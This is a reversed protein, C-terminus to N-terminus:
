MHYDCNVQIKKKKSQVTYYAILVNKHVFDFEIRTSQDSINFCPICLRLVYMYYYFYLFFTIKIHLAHLSHKKHMFLDKVVLRPDLCANSHVFFM